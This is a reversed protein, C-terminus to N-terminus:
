ADRFRVSRPSPRGSRRLPPQTTPSPSAALSPVAVPPPPPPAPPLGSPVDPVRGVAQCVPCYWDGAPVRLLPPVFCTTHWGSNCLSCLIMHAHDEASRCIECRHQLTPRALSPRITPDIHLLHCPTCNTSHMTVEQGCQGFLRLTGQPLVERVRLIEPQSSLQLTNDANRRRVYVFDGAQFRRLGPVFAGGKVTAYRLTDRHQAVLNNSMAIPVQRQVVKARAILSLAAQDPDDFNIPQSVREYIAPPVIPRQAYLLHYPSM